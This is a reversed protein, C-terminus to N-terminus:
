PRSLCGHLRSSPRGNRSQTTPCAAGSLHTRQRIMIWKRRTVIHFLSSPPGKSKPFTVRGGCLKERRESHMFNKTIAENAQVQDPRTLLLAYIRFVHDVAKRHLPQIKLNSEMLCINM